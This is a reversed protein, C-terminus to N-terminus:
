KEVKHISDEEVTAGSRHGDKSIRSNSLVIVPTPAMQPYVLNRSWSSDELLIDLLIDAPIENINLAEDLQRNDSGPLYEIVVKASHGNESTTKNFIKAFRVFRDLENDDESTIFKAITTKRMINKLDQLRHDHKHALLQEGNNTIADVVWGNEIRLTLSPSLMGYDDSVRGDSAPIDGSIWTAHIPMKKSPFLETFTKIVPRESGNKVNGRFGILYLRRDFVAWYAEFGKYNGTSIMSFEIGQDKIQPPLPTLDTLWYRKGEILLEDLRQDTGFATLPLFILGILLAPIFRHM